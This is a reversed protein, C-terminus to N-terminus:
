RLVLRCLKSLHVTVYSKDVVESYVAYIAGGDAVPRAQFKLQSPSLISFGQSAKKM